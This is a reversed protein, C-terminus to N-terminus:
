SQGQGQLNITLEAGSNRYVILSSNAVLEAVTVSPPIIQGKSKLLQQLAQEVSIHRIDRHPVYVVATQRSPASTQDKVSEEM